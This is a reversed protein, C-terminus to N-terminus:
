SRSALEERFARSLREARDRMGATIANPSLARLEDDSLGALHARWDAELEPNFIELDLVSMAKLHLPEPVMVRYEDYRPEGEGEGADIVSLVCPVSADLLAHRARGADTAANSGPVATFSCAVAASEQWDDGFEIPSEEGDTGEISDAEPNRREVEALYCQRAVETLEEANIEGLAEDSLSEYHRALEDPNIQM